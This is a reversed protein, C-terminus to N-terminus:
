EYVTDTKYSIQWFRQAHIHLHQRKNKAFMPQWISLGSSCQLDSLQKKEVAQEILSFNRIFRDIYHIMYPGCDFDNPQVPVPIDASFIEPLNQLGYQIKLELELWEKVRKRNHGWKLGLSDMFLISCHHHPEQSLCLQPYCVIIVFWHYEQCIPIIALDLQPFNVWKTWRRVSEPGNNILHSYFWTSFVVIKLSSLSSTIFREYWMSLGFNVAEDNLWREPQFRAIDKKSLYVSHPTVGTKSPLFSEYTTHPSSPPSPDNDSVYVTDASNM